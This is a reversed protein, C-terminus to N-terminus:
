LAKIGMMEGSKALAFSGYIRVALIMENMHYNTTDGYVTKGM